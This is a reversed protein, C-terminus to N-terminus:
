RLRPPRDADLRIPQLLDRPRIRERVLDQELRAQADRRLEVVRRTMALVRVGNANRANVLEAVRCACVARRRAHVLKGAAKAEVKAWGEVQAILGTNQLDVKTSGGGVQYGIATISRGTESSAPVAQAQCQLITVSCSAIVMASKIAACAWGRVLAHHTRRAM